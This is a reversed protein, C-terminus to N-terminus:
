VGQERERPGQQDSQKRRYDRAVAEEDHKNTTADEAEQSPANAQQEAPAAM